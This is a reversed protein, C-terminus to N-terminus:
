QKTETVRFPNSTGTGSAVAIVAGDDADCYSGADDHADADAHAGTNGNAAPQGPRGADVLTRRSDCLPADFKRGLRRVLELGRDGTRPRALDTTPTLQTANM